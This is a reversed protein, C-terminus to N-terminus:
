DGYVSLRYAYQELLALNIEYDAKRNYLNTAKKGFNEDVINCIDEYDSEMYPITMELNYDQLYKKLFPCISEISSLLFCGM